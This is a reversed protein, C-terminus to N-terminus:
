PEYLRVSTDLSMPAALGPGYWCARIRFDMANKFDADTKRDAEIWIGYAENVSDDSNYTVQAYPPANAVDMSKIPSTQIIATRANMIFGDITGPCTTGIPGTAIGDKATIADWNNKIAVNRPSAIFAQHAARLAEAQADIQQKVLTSELTRQASNTGQNMVAMAGVAVLSFVAFALLVEIITDGRTMSHAPAGLM